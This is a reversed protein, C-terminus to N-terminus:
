NQHSDYAASKETDTECTAAAVPNLLLRTGAAFTECCVFLLRLLPFFLARKPVIPLMFRIINLTHLIKLDRGSYGHGRDRDHYGGDTDKLPAREIRQIM